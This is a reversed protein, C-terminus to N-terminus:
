KELKHMLKLTDKYYENLADVISRDSMGIDYIDDALTSMQSLLSDMHDFLEYYKKKYDVVDSVTKKKIIKKKTKTAM